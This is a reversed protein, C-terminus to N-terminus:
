VFDRSNGVFYIQKKNQPHKKTNSISDFRFKYKSKM